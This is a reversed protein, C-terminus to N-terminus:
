TNASPDIIRLLLASAPDLQHDGHMIELANKISRRYREVTAPTVTWRSAITVADKPTTLLELIVGAHIADSLPTLAARPFAELSHDQFNCIPCSRLRRYEGPATGRGRVVQL